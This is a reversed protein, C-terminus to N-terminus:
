EDDRCYDALYFVLTYDIGSFIINNTNKCSESCNFTMMHFPRADEFMRQLLLSLVVLLLFKEREWKIHVITKDKDKDMDKDIMNM